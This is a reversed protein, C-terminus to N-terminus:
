RGCLEWLSQKYITRVNSNHHETSTSDAQFDFAFTVLYCSGPPWFSCHPAWPSPHLRYLLVLAQSIDSVIWPFPLFFLAWKAKSLFWCCSLFSIWFFHSLGQPGTIQLLWVFPPLLFPPISPLDLHSSCALGTSLLQRHGGGTHRPSENGGPKWSQCKVIAAKDINGKNSFDLPM